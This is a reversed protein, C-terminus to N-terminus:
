ALPRAAVGAWREVIEGITKHDDAPTDRLAQIMLDHTLVALAEYDQDEAADDIQRAEDMCRATLEPDAHLLYARLARHLYVSKRVLDFVLTALMLDFARTGPEPVPNGAPIRM